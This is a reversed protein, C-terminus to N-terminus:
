GCPTVWELAVWIPRGLPWVGDPYLLIIPTLLQLCILRSLKELVEELILPALLQATSCLWDKSQVGGLKHTLGYISESGIQLNARPWSGRPRLHLQTVQPADRKLPSRGLAGCRVRKRNFVIFVCAYGVRRRREFKYLNHFPVIKYIDYDILNSMPHTRPLIFPSSPQRKPILPKNFM